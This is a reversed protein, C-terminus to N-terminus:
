SVAGFSTIPWVRYTVQGLVQSNSVYNETQYLAEIANEGEDAMVFCAGDPVQRSAIITADDNLVGTASNGELPTASVVVAGDSAVNAWEGAVAIVRKMQVSGDVGRYAIVTGSAPKGAGQVLVTQGKSLAPAMSGTEVVHLSGPLKFVLVAVLAAVVLLALVVGLVVAIRRNRKIRRIEKRFDDPSYPSQARVPNAEKSLSDPSAHAASSLDRDAM